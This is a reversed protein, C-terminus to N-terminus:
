ENLYEQWKRLKEEYIDIEFEIGEKEDELIKLRSKLTIIYDEIAEKKSTYVYHNVFTSTGDSLKFRSMRFSPDNDPGVIEVERPGKWDCLWFKDGPKLDNLWIKM